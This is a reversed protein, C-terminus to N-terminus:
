EDRAAVWEFSMVRDEVTQKKGTKCRETETNGKYCTSGAEPLQGFQIRHLGQPWSAAQHQPLVAAAQRPAALALHQRLRLTDRFLDDQSRAQPWLQRERRGSTMATGGFRFRGPQGFQLQHLLTLPRRRCRHAVVQVVVVLALLSACIFRML